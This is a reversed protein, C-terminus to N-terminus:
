NKPTIVMGHFVPMNNLTESTIVSTSYQQKGQFATAKWDKQSYKFYSFDVFFNKLKTSKLNIISTSLTRAYQWLLSHITCNQFAANVLL